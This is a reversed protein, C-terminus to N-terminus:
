AEMTFDPRLDLESGSGPDNVHALDNVGDFGLYSAFLSSPPPQPNVVVQIEDSAALLGDSATLRLLYTGSASFRVFTAASAPSAFTVPGPGSVVSWIATVSGGPRGDDAIAGQVYVSDVPFTITTDAGADVTPPENPPALTTASVPPSSSGALGAGNVATIRYTYTTSAQLGTDAYFTDAVSAITVGGRDVNYSAVGSEADSAASWRLDIRSTDAATAALIAPASPPTIDSAGSALAAVESASLARDYLRADDVSGSLAGDSNSPAEGVHLPDNNADPAGAPVAHTPGDQVGDLYLRVTTGQKVAAVHYWRGTALANSGDLTYTAGGFRLRLSLRPAPSDTRAALYYSGATSASASKQLIRPFSAGGTAPLSVFRVWAGMTFDARLDLASTSGPDNVVVVDNVGDFSLAGGIRGTTWVPGNVLTGASGGGSSDLAITGTGDDFRWHARPDTSPPPPEGGTRLQFAGRVSNYSDNAGVGTFVFVFGRGADSWWKPSFNAFFTTRVVEGGKPWGLEYMVTTWPGWPEPADFIGINGDLDSTHNTVLLYRGLGPNYIASSRLVGNPDQFVPQRESFTGWTPNGSADLGRFFQYQSQSEIGAVPVRLLFIQGPKQSDFVYAQLKAAYIYVYGDRAGQYAKGFQLFAFLGIRHASYTWEVGTNTWTAGHNTSKYLRQYDLGNVDSGPSGWFYLTPGISLIAQTKGGFQYPHDACNPDGWIDHGISGTATGEIRAIGLSVRCASDTGSFGGGDGWSTYQHDDDAWTLPWNDSGPARRVHTSFDFSASAIM